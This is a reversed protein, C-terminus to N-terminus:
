ANKAAVPNVAAQVQALGDSISLSHGWVKQWIPTVIDVIEVSQPLYSVGDSTAYDELATLFLNAGEINGTASLYEKWASARSPSAAGTSSSMFIQGATSTYENLYVWAADQAKSDTTISYCSGDSATVHAKPGAPWNAFGFNISTEQQLFTILWTGAIDMAAHNEVFASVGATTISQNEALTPVYPGLENLWFDYATAAEPSDVVCQTQAPNLFRAGFPQLYMPGAYPFDLQAFSGFGYMRDGGTGSNLRKAKALMDELTWDAEPYPEGAKDFVDKNYVSIIPEVGYSLGYTKGGGQYFSLGPGVFDKLDFGPQSTMYQDLAVLRNAQIFEQVFSYEAYMVDPLGGAAGQVSYKTQYDAAPTNQGNVIINPHREMFFKDFQAQRVVFEPTWTNAVTITVPKTPEDIAKPWSLSKNLAEAKSLPYSSSTTAGLSNASGGSGGGGISSGGCGALGAVGVAAAAYGLFRRRGFGPTEGQLRLSDNSREM